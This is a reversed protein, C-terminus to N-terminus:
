SNMLLKITRLYRYAMIQVRMILDDSVATTRALDAEHKM